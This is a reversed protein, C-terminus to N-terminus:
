SGRMAGLSEEFAHTFAAHAKDLDPMIDFTRGIESLIGYIFIGLTEENHGPFQSDKLLGPLLTRLKGLLTQEQIAFRDKYSMAAQSEILTVKRYTEDRCLDLFAKAGAILGDWHTDQSDVHKSVHTNANHMLDEYVARFLGHKDGFHYYLSGRAMGSEAVIRSTSAGSYGNLMFERAAIDIFKKRTEELNEKNSGPRKSM